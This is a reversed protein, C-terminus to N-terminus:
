EEFPVHKPRKIIHMQNVFTIKRNAESPETKPTPPRVVEKRYYDRIEKLEELADDMAAPFLNLELLIRCAEYYKKNDPM